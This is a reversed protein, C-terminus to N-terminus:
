VGIRAIPEVTVEPSLEQFSLVTVDPLDLEVLRRVYRRVDARTVVVAPGKTVHKKM